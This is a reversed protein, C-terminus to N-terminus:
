KKEHTVNCRVQWLVVDVIIVCWLGVGGPGGGSGARGQWWLGGGAAAAKDM